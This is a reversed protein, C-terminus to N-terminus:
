VALDGATMGLTLVRGLFLAASAKASSLDCERRFTLLGLFTSVFFTAFLFCGSGVAAAHLLLLFVLVLGADFGADDADDEDDALTVLEDLELVPHKLVVHVGSTLEIHIFKLM